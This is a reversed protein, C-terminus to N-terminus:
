LIENEYKNILGDPPFVYIKEFINFSKAYDCSKKSAVLTVECNDINDKITFIAPCTVLLDGIRDTRFILVDNIM